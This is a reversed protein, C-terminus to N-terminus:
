QQKQEKAKLEKAQIVFIYLNRCSQLRKLYVKKQTGSLAEIRPRLYECRSVLQKLEDVTIEMAYDDNSCIDNFELKWDDACGQANAASTPSFAVPGAPLAGAAVILGVAMAVCDTRM